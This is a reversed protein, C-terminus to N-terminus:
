DYDNINKRLFQLNYQKEFKTVWAYSAVFYKENTIQLLQKRFDNRTLTNPPYKNYLELAKQITEKSLYKPRRIKIKRIKKKEKRIGYKKWKIITSYPINYKKSLESTSHYKLEEFIKLKLQIPHTRNKKKLKEIESESTSNEFNPPLNMENEQIKRPSLFCLGKAILNNINHIDEIFHNIDEKYEKNTLLNKISINLDDDM